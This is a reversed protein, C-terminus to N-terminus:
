RRPRKPKRLGNVELLLTGTERSRVVLWFNDSVTPKVKNLKRSARVLSSFNGVHGVIKGLPDRILVQYPYIINGKSNRRPVHPMVGQKQWAAGIPTVTRNAPKAQNNLANGCHKCCVIEVPLYRLQEEFASFRQRYLSRTLRQAM